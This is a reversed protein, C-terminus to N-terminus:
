PKGPTVEIRVSEISKISPIDSAPDVYHADVALGHWTSDVLGPDIELPKFGQGDNLEVQEGDVFITVRGPEEARLEVRRPTGDPKKPLKGAAIVEFNEPPSAMYGAFIVPSNFLQTIWAGFGFRPHGPTVYLLPTGEVHNVPPKHNIGFNGSWEITVSVTTSGTDVVACGIGPFLKDDLPPHAVPPATDYVGPRTFADAIVVGGDFVGLPEFHEPILSKCDTWREGLSASDEREFDDALTFVDACPQEACGANLAPVAAEPSRALADPAGASFCSALVIAATALYNQHPKQLLNTSV